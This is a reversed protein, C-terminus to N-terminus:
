YFLYFIQSQTYEFSHYLSFRGTRAFRIHWCINTFQIKTSYFLNRTLLQICRLPQVKSINYLLEVRKIKGVCSRLLLGLVMFFSSGLRLGSRFGDSSSNASLFLLLSMVFTQMIYLSSDVDTEIRHVNFTHHLGTM